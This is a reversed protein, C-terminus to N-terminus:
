PHNNPNDVALGEASAAANLREDACLFTLGPLDRSRLSHHAILATALHIADYGRLPHRELLECALSIVSDTVVITQYSARCDDYFIDRVRRYDIPTLTRERVRRSLASTIEVTLLQSTVLLSAQSLQMRVWPSGTEDIYHKLM